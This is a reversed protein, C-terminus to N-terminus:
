TSEQLRKQCSECLAGTSHDHDLIALAFPGPAIAPLLAAIIEGFRAHVAASVENFIPWLVENLFRKSVRVLVTSHRQKRYRYPALGYRKLLAHFVLADWDNKLACQFEQVDPAGALEHLRARIHARAQEADASGLLGAYKLEIFRFAEVLIPEANM